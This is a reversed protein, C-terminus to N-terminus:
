RCVTDDDKSMGVFTTTRKIFSTELM